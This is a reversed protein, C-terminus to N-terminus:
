KYQYHQLESSNDIGSIKYGLIDAVQDFSYDISLEQNIYTYTFSDINDNLIDIYSDKQKKWKTLDIEKETDNKDFVASEDNLRNVLQNIVEEAFENKNKNLRDLMSQTKIVSNNTTDVFLQIYRDEHNTLHYFVTVTLLNNEITSTVTRKVDITNKKDMTKANSLETTIELETLSIERQFQTTEEQSLGNLYIIDKHYSKIYPYIDDNQFQEKTMTEITVYDNLTEKKMDQIKVKSKGTPYCLYCICLIVILVILFVTAMQQARTLKMIIVPTM